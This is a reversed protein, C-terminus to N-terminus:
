EKTWTVGGDSTSWRVGGQTTIVGHLADSFRIAVITDTEVAPSGVPQKNWSQGGDSSHFLAGGSGGAWVNNDVVSVVHFTTPQENLVRTWAGPFAGASWIAM